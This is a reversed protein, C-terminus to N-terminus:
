SIYLRMAIGLLYIIVRVVNTTVHVKTMSSTTWGVVMMIRSTAGCVGTMMLNTAEGGEM